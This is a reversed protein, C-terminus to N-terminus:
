SAEGGVAGRNGIGAEENIGIASASAVGHQDRRQFVRQQGGGIEQQLVPSFTTRGGLNGQNLLILCKCQSVLRKREVSVNLKTADSGWWDLRM